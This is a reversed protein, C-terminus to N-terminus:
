NSPYQGQGQPFGLVTGRNLSDAARRGNSGSALWGHMGAGFGENEAGVIVAQSGADVATNQLQEACAPQARGAGDGDHGSPARSRLVQPRKGAQGIDAQVEHQGVVSREPAHGRQSSGATKRGPALEFRARSQPAKRQRLDGVLQLALEIGELSRQASGRGVHVPVMVHMLHRADACEHGVDRPSARGVSVHGGLVGEEVTTCPRNAPVMEPLVVFM